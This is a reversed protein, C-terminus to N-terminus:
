LSITSKAKQINIKHVQILSNGRASYLEFPLFNNESISTNQVRASVWIRTFTLTACTNENTLIWFIIRKLNTFQM